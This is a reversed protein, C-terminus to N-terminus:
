IVRTSHASIIPRCSSLAVSQNTERNEFFFPKGKREKPWLVQYVVETSNNTRRAKIQLQLIEQSAGKVELRVHVYSNGDQIVAKIRSALDTPSIAGPINDAAHAVPVLVTLAFCAVRLSLSLLPHMPPNM